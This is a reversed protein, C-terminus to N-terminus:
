PKNRIDPYKAVVSNQWLEIESKEKQKANLLIKNSYSFVNQLDGKHYKWNELNAKILQYFIEGDYQYGADNDKSFELLALVFVENNMINHRMCIAIDDISYDSITKNLLKEYWENLEM